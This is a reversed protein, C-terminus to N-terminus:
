FNKKYCSEYKEFGLKALYKMHHKDPGSYTLTKIGDAPLKSYLFKGISFDRFQPISYDLLIDVNNDAQKKGLFVGAPTGEHLVAYGVDASEFNTNIGPFCKSIDAAYHNLFHKIVSDDKTIKICTYEVSTNSLKVLYYINILVLCINMIATPYSHIIFAYITFIVSGVSNVIRLKAVSAMLFSVLVLSSGLYGITEIFTNNM